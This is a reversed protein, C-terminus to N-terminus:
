VRGGERAELVCTTTRERSVSYQGYPWWRAIGETFLTFAEAKSCDVTTSKQLPALKPRVVNEDDM